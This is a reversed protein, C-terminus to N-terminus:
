IVNEFFWVDEYKCNLLSFVIELTPEFPTADRFSEPSLAADNKRAVFMIVKSITATSSVFERESDVIM